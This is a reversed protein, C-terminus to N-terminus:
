FLTTQNPDTKYFIELLKNRLNLTKFDKKVFILTLRNNIKGKELPAGKKLLSCVHARICHESLKMKESVARYTPNLGEEELNYITLFTNLEQRSLKKFIGNIQDKFERLGSFQDIKLSKPQNKEMIIPFEGQALLEKVGKNGTSYENDSIIQRMQPIKNSDGKKNLSQNNISQNVGKNGTSVLFFSNKLDKQANLSDIVRESLRLIVENQRLIAKKISEMSSELRNLRDQISQNAIESNDM